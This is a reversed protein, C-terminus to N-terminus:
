NLIWWNVTSTELASDSNIVFSVGASIATAPASLNGPTGGPANRTVFIKSLATVATTAVTVTGGVLTATGATDAAGGAAPMALKTTTVGKLFTQADLFAM